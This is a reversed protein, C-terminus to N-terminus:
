GDSTVRAKDEIKPTTPATPLARCTSTVIGSNRTSVLARGGRNVVSSRLTCRLSNAPIGTHANCDDFGAPFSTTAKCPPASTNCGVM